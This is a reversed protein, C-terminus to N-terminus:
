ESFPNEASAPGDEGEQPRSEVPKVPTASASVQGRLEHVGRLFSAIEDHVGQTQSVVLLGPQLLRLEAQGGKNAAWTEMAICKTIAESLQRLQDKSVGVIGRVDYVCTFLLTEAKEPTTILLVEDQIVYTLGIRPLMLRLASRLTINRLNVSIQENPDIGVDDLEPTDLMIPIEYEDQLFTVVEELPTEVFDLGPSTLPGNLVSNIKKVSAAASEGVCYCPVPASIATAKDEGGDMGVAGLQGWACNGVAAVLVCAVACKWLWDHRAM